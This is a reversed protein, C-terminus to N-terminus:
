TLSVDYYLCLTSHRRGDVFLGLAFAAVLRHSEPASVGSAWPRTATQTLEAGAECFAAYSARPGIESGCPGLGCRSLRRADDSEAFHMVADCGNDAASSRGAFVRGNLDSVVLACPALGAAVAAEWAAAIIAGVPEAIISAWDTSVHDADADVAIAGSDTRYTFDFVDCPSNPAESARQIEAEIQLALQECFRRIREPPGGFPRRVAFAQARPELDALLSRGDGVAGSEDHALASKWRTHRLGIDEALACQRVAITTCRDVLAITAAFSDRFATIARRGSASFNLVNKMSKGAASISKQLDASKGGVTDVYGCVTTTAENTSRSLRGIADAITGFGLGLEGAHSSEIAANISLMNTESSITDLLEMIGDVRQAADTMKGTSEEILQVSNKTNTIETIAQDILKVFATSKAQM